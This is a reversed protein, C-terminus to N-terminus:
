STESRDLIEGKLVDWVNQLLIPQSQANPHIRDPQMLDPNLAVGDLFFEILVINYEDALEPYMAAFESTYEIGYNPPIQMGALMVRAGNKRAMEIINALNSKTNSIPLGRLGDNGGLEILVIDPQHLELARPFRRLAGGTTDGSISANVVRYGYEQEALRDQLLSVWSDEVDM